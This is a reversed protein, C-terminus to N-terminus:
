LYSDEIIVNKIVIIVNHGYYGNHSNYVALQFLGKNTEFNVFKCEHSEIHSKIKLKDNKMNVIEVSLLQANLFENVDDFSSVYGFEECCNADGDIKVEYSYLNTQILYGIFRDHIEEIKIIKEKM